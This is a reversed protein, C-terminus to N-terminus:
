VTYTVPWNCCPQGRVVHLRGAGPEAVAAAVTESEPQGEIWHRCIGQPYYTHDALAMMARQPTLRGREAQLLRWLGHMRFRSNERESAEWGLDEFPATREGEPHNGHTAIGDRAPVFGVGGANFEVSGSAGAGDAILLSGQGGIGYREALEVAAPVSTGALALLGWQPMTLAGTADGSSYLSNRFLSMGTSWLGLGLVEGPYALVLVTPGGKLRLRLVIYRPAADVGVDKTQGSLPKGDLTLAGAVGFSTCGAPSPKTRAAPTRGAPAEVGAASEAIGRFLAPIFPARREFLADVPPPLARWPVAQRLYVDYGPYRSRVLDGYARGCDYADGEFAVLPVTGEPVRRPIVGAPAARGPLAYHEQVM